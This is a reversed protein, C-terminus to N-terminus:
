CPHSPKPIRFNGQSDTPPWDHILVALAVLPNRATEAQHIPIAVRSLAVALLGLVLLRPATAWTRGAKRSRRATWRLLLWSVLAVGASTFLFNIRVSHLFLVPRLGVQLDRARVAHGFFIVIESWVLHLVCVSFIFGTLVGWSRRQWFYRTSFLTLAGAISLIAVDQVFGNLAWLLPQESRLPSGLFIRLRIGAGFVLGLLLSAETFAVMSASPQVLAATGPVPPRRRDHVAKQRFSPWLRM